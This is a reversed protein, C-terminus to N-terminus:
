ERDLQVHCICGPPTPRVLQPLVHSPELRQFLVISPCTRRRRTQMIPFLLPVAGHGGISPRTHSRGHTGARRSHDRPPRSREKARRERACGCPHASPKVHCNARRMCGRVDDGRAGNTREDVQPGKRRPTVAGRPTCRCGRKGQARSRGNSYGKHPLGIWARGYRQCRGPAIRDSGIWGTPGRGKGGKGIPDSPILHSGDLPGCTKEWVTTRGWRGMGGLEVFGLPGGGTHPRVSSWPLWQLWVLARALCSSRVSSRDMSSHLHLPSVCTRLFAGSAHFSRVFGRPRTSRPRPSSFWRSRLFLFADCFSARPCQSPGTCPFAQSPRFSFSHTDSFVLFPRSLFSLLFHIPLQHM